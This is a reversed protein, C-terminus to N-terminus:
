LSERFLLIWENIPTPPPIQVINMPIRKIQLVHEWVGLFAPLFRISLSQAEISELIATNGYTGENLILKNKHENRENTWQTCVKM